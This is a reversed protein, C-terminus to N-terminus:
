RGGFGSLSLVTVLAALFLARRMWLLRIEWPSERPIGKDMAFLLSLALLTWLAIGGWPGPLSPVRLVGRAELVASAAAGALLAIGAGCAVCLIKATKETWRM